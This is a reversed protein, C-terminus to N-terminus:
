DISITILPAHLVCLECYFLSLVKPVPPYVPRQRVCSVYIIQIDYFQCVGGHESVRWFHDRKMFFTNLKKLVLVFNFRVLRIRSRFMPINSSWISKAFLGIDFNHRATKLPSATLVSGVSNLLWTINKM